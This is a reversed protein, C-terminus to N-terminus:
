LYNIYRMADRKKIKYLPKNNLSEYIFWGFQKLASIYQKKTAPSLDVSGLYEDVLERYLPDVKNWMEIDVVPLRKARKRLLNQEISVVYVEQRVRVPIGHRAFGARIANSIIDRNSQLYRIAPDTYARPPMGTEPDGAFGATGEILENIFRGAADNAGRTTNTLIMELEKNVSGTVIEEINSEDALGGQEGRRVYQMPDYVGYVLEDQHDLWVKVIADRVENMVVDAVVIGMANSVQSINQYQRKAM